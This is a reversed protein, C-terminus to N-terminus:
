SLKSLRMHASFWNPYRTLNWVRCIASANDILYIICMCSMKSCAEIWNITKTERTFNLSMTKWVKMLQASLSSFDFSLINQLFYKLTVHILLELDIVNIIITKWFKMNGKYYFYLYQLLLNLNVSFLLVNIILIVTNTHLFMMTM